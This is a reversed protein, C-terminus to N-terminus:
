YGGRPAGIMSSPRDPRVTSIMTPIKPPTESPKKKKGLLQGAVGFTAVKAVDKVFGM